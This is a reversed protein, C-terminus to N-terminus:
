TKTRQVGGGGGVGEIYSNILYEVAEDASQIIKMCTYSLSIHVTLMRVEPATFVCTKTHFNSQKVYLNENM